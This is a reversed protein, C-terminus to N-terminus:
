EEEGKEIREARVLSERAVGIRKAFVELAQAVTMNPMEDLPLPLACYESLGERLCAVVRRLRAAENLAVSRMDDALKEYTNAKEVEEDRATYGALFAAMRLERYKLNWLGKPTQEASYMPQGLKNMGEFEVGCFERALKERDDQTM